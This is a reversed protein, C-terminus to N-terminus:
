PTRQPASPQPVVRCAPLDHNRNGIPNVAAEWESLGEPWAITSPDARGRVSIILLMSTDQSYPRGTRLSKPIRLRM